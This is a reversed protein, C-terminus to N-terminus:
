RMDALAPAQRRSASEVLMAWRNEGNRIAARTLIPTGGERRGAVPPALTVRAAWPSEEAFPGIVLDLRGQELAVLLPEASGPVLSARAGADHSVRAMLARAPQPEGAPDVVIGIRIDGRAHIRDLTGATDRPLGNCGALLLLPLLRKM